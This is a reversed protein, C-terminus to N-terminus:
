DIAVKKTRREGIVTKWVWFALAAIHLAVLGWILPGLGKLPDHNPPVATSVAMRSCTGLLSGACCSCV